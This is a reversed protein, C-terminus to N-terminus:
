EATMLCSCFLATDGLRGASKTVMWMLLSFDIFLKQEGFPLSFPTRLVRIRKLANLYQPVWRAQYSMKNGFASRVSFVSVFQTFLSISGFSRHLPFPFKFNCYMYQRFTNKGFKCVENLKVNMYERHLYHLSAILIYKTKMYNFTHM